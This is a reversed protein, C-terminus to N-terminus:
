VALIDEKIEEKTLPHTSDYFQNIEPYEWLEFGLFFASEYLSKFKKQYILKFADESVHILESLPEGLNCYEDILENNPNYKIHFHLLDYHEQALGSVFDLPPLKDSKSCNVSKETPTLNWIQNHAVYTWPIFHDLDYDFPEVYLKQSYLCPVKGQASIFEDFFDHQKKLSERVSPPELKFLIGPIEPNRNQLYSALNFYCFDLLISKNKLFYDLWYRNFRIIDLDYIRDLIYPCNNSSDLAAQAYKLHHGKNRYTGTWPSLFHFPVEAAIKMVVETLQPNNHNLQNLLSQKNTHPDFGFEHILSSIVENIKDKRGLNLHCYNVPYWANVLMSSAIERIPIYDKNKDILQLISIFWYYKYSASKSHFVQALKSIDLNLSDPLIIM